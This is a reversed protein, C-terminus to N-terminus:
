GNCPPFHLGELSDVCRAYPRIFANDRYQADRITHTPRGDSMLFRFYDDMANAVTYPGCDLENVEQKTLKALWDRAKQSVPKIPRKPTASPKEYLAILAKHCFSALPHFYLRLAM